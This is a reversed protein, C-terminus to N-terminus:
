RLLLLITGIGLLILTTALIASYTKASQPWSDALFEREVTAPLSPKAPPATHGQDFEVARIILRAEAADMGLSQAFQALARRRPWTLPRDELEGRVMEHFIRRNEARTAQPPQERGSDSSHTYHEEEM